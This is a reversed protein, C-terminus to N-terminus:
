PTHQPNANAWRRPISMVGVRGHSGHRLQLGAEPARFARFALFHPIPERMHGDQRDPPLGAQLPWGAVMTVRELTAWWEFHAVELRGNALFASELIEPCSPAPPLAPLERQAFEKAYRRSFRFARDCKPDLGSPALLCNATAGALLLRLHHVSGMSSGRIRLFQLTGRFTRWRVAPEEPSSTQHWSQPRCHTGKAPRNM